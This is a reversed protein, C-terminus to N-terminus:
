RDPARSHNDIRRDLLEIERQLSFIEGPDSRQTDKLLSLQVTLHDRQDRLDVLVRDSSQRETM